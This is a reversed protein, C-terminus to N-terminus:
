NLFRQIPTTPLEVSPPWSHNHVNKMGPLVVLLIRSRETVPVSPIALLLDFRQHRSGPHSSTPLGSLEIGGPERVLLFTSGHGYRWGNLHYSRHGLSLSSSCGIM